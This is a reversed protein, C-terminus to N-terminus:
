SSTGGIRRNLSHRRVLRHFIDAMVMACDCAAADFPFRGPGPDGHYENLITEINGFSTEDNAAITPDHRPM